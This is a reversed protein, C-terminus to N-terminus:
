ENDAIKFYYDESNQLIATIEPLLKDIISDLLKKDDKYENKLGKLIVDFYGDYGLDPNKICESARTGIPYRAYSIFLASIRELFRDEETSFIVPTKKSLKLLDHEKMHTPLKQFGLENPNQFLIIAKFINELALSCLLYFSRFNPLFFNKNNDWLNYIEAELTERHFYSFNFNKKTLESILTDIQSQHSEFIIDADRILNKGVDIWNQPLQNIKYMSKNIDNDLQLLIGFNNISQIQM